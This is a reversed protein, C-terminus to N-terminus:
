PLDAPAEFMFLPCRIFCQIQSYYRSHDVVECQCRRYRLEFHLPFNLLHRMSLFMTHYTCWHHLGALFIM